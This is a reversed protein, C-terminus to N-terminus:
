EWEEPPPKGLVGPVFLAHWKKCVSRSFGDNGDLPLVYETGLCQRVKVRLVRWKSRRTMRFRMWWWKSEATPWKIPENKM